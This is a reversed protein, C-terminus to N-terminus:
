RRSFVHFRMHRFGNCPRYVYIVRHPPRIPELKFPHKQIETLKEGEASIRKTHFKLTDATLPLSRAWKILAEEANTNQYPHKKTEILLNDATIQFAKRITEFNASVQDEDQIETLRVNKADITIPLGLPNQGNNWFILSKKENESVTSSAIKCLIKWDLGIESTIKGIAQAFGPTDFSLDPSEGLNILDLRNLNQFKTFIKADVTILGRIQSIVLTTLSPADITKLVDLTKLEGGIIELTELSRFEGIKFIGEVIEESVDALVLHKMTSFPKKRTRSAYEEDSAETSQDLVPILLSQLKEFFWKEEEEKTALNRVYVYDFEEMVQSTFLIFFDELDVLISKGDASEGKIYATTREALKICGCMKKNRRASLEDIKRTIKDASADKLLLKCVVSNTSLEEIRAEINDRTLVAKLQESKRVVEIRYWTYYFCTMFVSTIFLAALRIAIRKSEKQEDINGLTHAM